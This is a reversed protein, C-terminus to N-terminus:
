DEHNFYLRVIEERERLGQVHLRNRPGHNEADEDNNEGEAPRRLIEEEIIDLEIGNRIAINHLVCCAIVMCSVYGPSSM